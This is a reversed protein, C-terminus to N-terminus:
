KKTFQTVLKNFECPLGGGGVAGRPLRLYSLYGLERSVGEGQGVALLGPPRKLRRLQVHVQGLPVRERTGVVSLRTERRQRRLRVYIRGLSLRERPGVQPVGPPRKRRRLRVNGRELYM